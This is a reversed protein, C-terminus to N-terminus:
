MYEVYNHIRSTNPQTSRFIMETSENRLSRLLNIDDITKNHGPALDIMLERLLWRTFQQPLDPNDSAADFDYLPRTFWLRLHQPATYSTGTTWTSPGSGGAEWYLLYNDGTVPTNTSDATHSRICRYVIADTGTVVSQTSVASLTPGVYLTKSELTKHETLYVWCPDGTELKNRQREYQETTLVELPSDSQSGDRYSASAIRLINTPMGNSSTYVFTNAVLPITTPTSAIAWLHKGAVDKERIILNLKKIGISLQEASLPEGEAKVKLDEYAMDILENRTLNSDSTRAIPVGVPM